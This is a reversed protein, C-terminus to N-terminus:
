GESLSRYSGKCPLWQSTSGSIHTSSMACRSVIWQQKCGGLQEECVHLLDTSPDKHCSWHLWRFSALYIYFKWWSPGRAVAPRRQHTAKCLKFDGYISKCPADGSSTCSLSTQDQKLPASVVTEKDWNVLIEKAADFFLAESQGPSAFCARHHPYYETTQAWGGTYACYAKTDDHNAVLIMLYSNTGGLCKAYAENFGLACTPALNESASGGSASPGKVIITKRPFKSKLEGAALSFVSAFVLLVGFPRFLGVM